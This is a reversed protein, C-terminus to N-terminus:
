GTGTKHVQLEDADCCVNSFVCWRQNELTSHLALFGTTDPHTCWEGHEQTTTAARRRRFAAFVCVVAFSVVDILDPMIPLTAAAAVASSYKCQRRWHNSTKYMKKKNNDVDILTTDILIFQAAIFSTDSGSSEFTFGIGRRMYMMSQWLPSYSLTTDWRVWFWVSGRRLFWCYFIILFFFIFISHVILSLCFHENTFCVALVDLYFIHFLSNRAPLALGFLQHTHIVAALRWEKLSVVESQDRSNM